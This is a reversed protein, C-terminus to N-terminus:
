IRNTRDAAVDRPPAPWRRGISATSGCARGRARAAGAGFRPVANRPHIRSLPLAMKRGGIRPLNPRWSVRDAALLPLFTLL